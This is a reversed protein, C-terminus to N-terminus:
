TRSQRECFVNSIPNEHQMYLFFDRPRFETTKKHMHCMGKFALSFKM